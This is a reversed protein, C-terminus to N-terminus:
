EFIEGNYEVEGIDFNAYVFPGNPTHWIAEGFTPIKRGDIERYEKVPTTWRYNNYTKGDSSEYRDDSSFNTLAGSENFFLRAKITHGANTFTAETTLSDIVRWQINKDILTSPAFLCMDNFLTVTEGQTMKEGKANAVLFLSALKIKMTAENGQYIHLGDFPIGFMSSKIYFARSPPDYFNYQCAEIKLWKGNMKTKMKVTLTAKFHHIKPKGVAGVFRLYQQITVPLNVLDEQSLNESVLRSTLQEKVTTEFINKFSDPRTNLFAILVPILILVNAITGAKADTWSMVILAQSFVVATLGFWWWFEKDTLFFLLALLFLITTQLWLLGVPKTISQPLQEINALHFAKVFGMLHILGHILIILSFFIKM